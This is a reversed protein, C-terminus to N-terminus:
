LGDREVNLCLLPQSVGKSPAHGSSSAVSALQSACGIGGTMHLLLKCKDVSYPDCYQVNLVKLSLFSLYFWLLCLIMSVPLTSLM